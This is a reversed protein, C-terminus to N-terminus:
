SGTCLGPGQAANCGTIANSSALTARTEVRRAFDQLSEEEDQKLTQFERLREWITVTQGFTRRLAENLEAFTSSYRLHPMCQLVQVATGTLANLLEDRKREDSWKNNRAANDFQVEYIHYDYTGDFTKVKMTKPSSTSPIETATSTPALLSNSPAIRAALEEFRQNFLRELRQSLIAMEASLNGNDGEIQMVDSGQPQSVTEVPVLTPMEGMLSRRTRSAPGQSRDIQFGQCDAVNEADSAQGQGFLDLFGQCAQPLGQNRSGSPGESSEGHFNTTRGQKGSSGRGQRSM